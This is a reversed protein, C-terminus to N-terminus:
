NCVDIAKPFGMSLVGNFVYRLYANMNSAHNIFIEARLIRGIFMTYWTICVTICRHKTCYSTAALLVTKM